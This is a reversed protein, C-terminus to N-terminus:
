LQHVQCTSDILYYQLAKGDSTRIQFAMDCGLEIKMSITDSNNDPVPLPRAILWQGENYSWYYLNLVRDKPVALESIMLEKKNKKINALLARGFVPKLILTLGSEFRLWVPKLVFSGSNDIHKKAMKKQHLLFDRDLWYHGQEVMYWLSTLIEQYLSKNGTLVGSYVLAGRVFLHKQKATSGPFHKYVYTILYRMSDLLMQESVTLFDPELSTEHNTTFVLTDLQAYYRVAIVTQAQQILGQSLYEYCLQNLSAQKVQYCEPFSHDERTDTDTDTDTNTILVPEIAVEHVSVSTPFTHESLAEPYYQKQM